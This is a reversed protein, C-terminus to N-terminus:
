ACNVPVQVVVAMPVRPAALERTWTRHCRIPWSNPERARTANKESKQKLIVNTKM